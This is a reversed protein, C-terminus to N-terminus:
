GKFMYVVTLIASIAYAGLALATCAVLAMWAVPGAAAVARVVSELMQRTNSKMSGSYPCAPDLTWGSLTRFSV